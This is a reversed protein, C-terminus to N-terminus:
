NTRRPTSSRASNSPAPAALAAAVLPLLAKM